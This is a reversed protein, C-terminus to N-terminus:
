ADQSRRERGRERGENEDISYFSIGCEKRRGAIYWVMSGWCMLVGVWSWTALKFGTLLVTQLASRPYTTVVMTLPTTAMVVLFGTVFTAWAAAGAGLVMLWFFAVDLFYCNRSIDKLEGSIIAWPFIFVISLTNIYHLMKWSARTNDKGDGSLVPGDNGLDISMPTTATAATFTKYTRALLVPYAAVFFTSFIGAVFGEIAFRTGPRLSVMTLSLVMTICSSLTTVSLSTTRHFLHTFVITWILSSVRSLQYIQLQTFRNRTLMPKIYEKTPVYAFSLNSLIIKMSYVVALPIVLRVESWKFEFM